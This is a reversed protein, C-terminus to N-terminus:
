APLLAIEDSRGLGPEADLEVLLRHESVGVLRAPAQVELHALGGEVRVVRLEDVIELGSGAVGSGTAGCLSVQMEGLILGVAIPAVAFGHRRAFFGIVGFILVSWVDLLAANLAYAGIVSLAFVVPWLIPTALALSGAVPLRREGWLLCMAFMVVAIGIFMDLWVTLAYFVPMLLISGRTAFPELSVPKPSERAIQVVLVAVLLLNVAMLFIPFARPQMSDGVIM